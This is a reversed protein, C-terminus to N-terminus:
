FNILSCPNLLKDSGLSHVIFKEKRRNVIVLIDLFNCVLIFSNPRVNRLHVMNITQFYMMAAIYM